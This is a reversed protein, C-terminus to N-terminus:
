QPRVAAAPLERGATLLARMRARGRAIRSKVTGLSSKMVEAIEAYDLGEVDCLVLALRQEEPLSELAKQLELRLEASLANAEPSAGQDPPEPAGEELALDLSGSPRRSRRRLEDHCANSAIRLLWSRFAGGRLGALNRWASVFAEQCADEAAQRQGLMRFCLNFVLAQHELVLENFADLNGQRALRLRDDPPTV